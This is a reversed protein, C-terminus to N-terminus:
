YRALPQQQQQPLPYGSPPIYSQQQHPYQLYPNNHAPQPAPAPQAPYYHHHPQQPPLAPAPAPVDMRDMKNAKQVVMDLTQFVDYDPVTIAKIGLTRVVRERFEGLKQVRVTLDANSERLAKFELADGPVQPLVPVAQSDRLTKKLAAVHGEIREAESHVQRVASKDFQEIKRNLLDIWLDQSEITQMATKLKKEMRRVDQESLASTATKKDGAGKDKEQTIYRGDKLRISSSKSLEGTRAARSPPRAVGGGGHRHHGAPEPSPSRSGRSHLKRMRARLVSLLAGEDDVEDLELAHAVERKFSEFQVRVKVWRDESEKRLWDSPAPASRDASGDWGVGGGSYYPLSQSLPHTLSQHLHQPHPPQTAAGGVGPATASPYLSQQLKQHERQRRLEEADRRLEEVDSLIRQAYAQATIDPDVRLLRGLSRCVDAYQRDARADELEGQLQAVQRAHTAEMRTMAMRLDSETNSEKMSAHGLQRMLDQVHREKQELAEQLRRTNEDKSYHERADAERAMTMDRLERTRLLLEDRLGAVEIERRKGDEHLMAIEGTLQEIKLKLGEATQGALRLENRLGAAETALATHEGMWDALKASVTLTARQVETANLANALEGYAAKLKDERALADKRMAESTALQAALSKEREAGHEVEHQLTTGKLELARLQGQLAAIAGEAERLKGSAAKQEGEHSSMIEDRRSLQLTLNQNTQESTRLKSEVEALKARLEAAVSDAEEHMARRQETEKQVQAQLSQVLSVKAAVEQAKTRVEQKALSLESQLESIRLSAELAASDKTHKAERQLDINKSQEKRLDDQLKQLQTHLDDARAGAERGRHLERELDAVQAQEERLADQAKSLQERLAPMRNAEDRLYSTERELEMMRSRQQRLEEQARQLERHMEPDNARERSAKLEARLNEVDRELLRVYRDEDAGGSGGGGNYPSPASYFQAPAQPQGYMGAGAREYTPRSLSGSPSGPYHGGRPQQRSYDIGDDVTHLPAAATRPRYGYSM